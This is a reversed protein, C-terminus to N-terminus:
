QEADLRGLISTMKVIAYHLDTRDEEGLRSLQGCLFRHLAEWRRNVLSRGKATLTLKVQRKDKPEPLRAVYGRKELKAVLPTLQQKSIRIRGALQTMAIGDEFHVMEELLHIQLHTLEPTGGGVLEGRLESSDLKGFLLPVLRIYDAATQEISNM